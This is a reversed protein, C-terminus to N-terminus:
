IVGGNNKEELSKEQEEIEFEEFIFYFVFYSIVYLVFGIIYGWFVFSSNSFILYLILGISFPFYMFISSSSAALRRVKLRQEFDLNM